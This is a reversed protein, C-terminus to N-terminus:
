PAEGSALVARALAAVGDRMREPAAGGASVHEILDSRVAALLAHALFEADREGRQQGHWLAYGENRYP